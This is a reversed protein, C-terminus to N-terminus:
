TDQLEEHCEPCRETYPSHSGRGVKCVPCWTGGPRVQMLRAVAEVAEKPQRGNHTCEWLADIVLDDVLATDCYGLMYCITELKEALMQKDVEAIFDITATTM